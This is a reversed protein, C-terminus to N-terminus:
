WEAERRKKQEAERKRGAWSNSPPEPSQGESINKVGLLELCKNACADAVCRDGHSDGAGSPDISGVAKTHEIKNGTTFIYALCEQNAEHSRQIFTKEKLAKRYKGFLAGKEKPNLFIGPKDSVRKTLGVEDRRFYLNRYGLNILEDCYTRGPGAGDPVEFAENFWRNLAIGIRAFAEPKIWPDVYEAIKEGTRLNVYTRASNSAGTGASVDVGVGVQLDVPFRGYMDPHIWLKLPGNRGEIFELADLSDEDFELMGEHYPPRVDETEIEQIMPGDFYQFDAAFPDMDLEQAIEMPHDARACENDYWPSRLKGDLIFPYEDPFDFTQDQIWVEGAFENDVRILKKEKSYYLGRSYLPHISWHLTLKNISGQSLRYFASGAGHHTSNFLRCKTVDRTSALMGAGDPVAAFEDPFLATCRGGRATDSTTSSGDITANNNLNKIHLHVYNNDTQFILKPLHNLTFLVKWFLCDPDEDKDVLDENRSLLRFSAYALFLFMWTFVLLYMWSAGMTRSKETLQDYGKTIAMRIDDFAVDQFEYTIFPIEPIHDPLLRPDYTWCNHVLLPRGDDSIVTFAHKPGCNIIDYVEATQQVETVSSQRGGSGNRNAEAHFQVNDRCHDRGRSDVDTRSGYGTDCKKKHQEGTRESDGLSLEVKHLERQQRHTGADDRSVTEGHGCSLGRIEDVEPGGSYGERRLSSLEAVEFGRLSIADNAMGYLTFTSETRSYNSAPREQMRLQNNARTASQERGGDVGERVRLAGAMGGEDHDPVAWKAQYSDPLRIEERDYRHVAEQWGNKTRVKHDPTLWIGYALMVSKRGQHLVNGHSVWSKGDWVKDSPQVSEIPVLGRDTIVPTGKAICFTNVYFLLDRSCMIWLQLAYDEKEFALELVKKRFLLNGRKTKYGPM